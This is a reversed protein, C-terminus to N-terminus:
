VYLLYAILVDATSASYQSRAPVAALRSEMGNAFYYAIRQNADGFPSSFRRIQNLQEIATRRRDFLPCPMYEDNSAKHLFPSDISELQASEDGHVVLAQKTQSIYYQDSSNKRGRSKGNVNPLHKNFHGLSPQLQIPFAPVVDPNAPEHNPHVLVHNFSQTEERKVAERCRGM